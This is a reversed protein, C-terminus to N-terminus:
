KADKGAADVTGYQYCDMHRERELAGSESLRLAAIVTLLEAANFSMVCRTDVRAFDPRLGENINANIREDINAKAEAFRESLKESM